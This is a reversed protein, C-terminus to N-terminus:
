GGCPLSSWWSPVEPPLPGPWAGTPSAAAHAAGVTHVFAFLAPAVYEGGAVTFHVGDTCRLTQGAVVQSYHGGPSVMASLNFVSVEPPRPAASTTTTPAPHPADDAVTRIIQNELVARGPADEPWPVGSPQEGSDYYPTTLFVVAAGRSGLVGVAERYRQALYADFQSQGISTWAGDVQQNFLDGRALYLVVDPNFADIWDRWQALLADPDGSRCPAGPALTYWLVQIQQDMALSCGPSGENVLEVGFRPAEAALGVGLSGAVSDGVLLVRLPRATSTQVAASAAAAAAPPPAVPVPATAAATPVLTGVLVACLAAAAAVPAAVLGRWRPFAGERIPREVLVYSVAAISVTVALRLAALSYGTLHTREGDVVLLVPWYWLYVGYSITGLWVLPRLSLLWPVVSGPAQVAGAIVAATALSVLLFGGSFALPSTEPIRWWMVATGLAGAVALGAALRRGRATRVPGWLAFATALAAGVLIAQARTDTGYYARNSPSGGHPSLVAMWVASALAGTASLAFLWGLRRRRDAERAAEDVVVTSAGSLLVVQQDRRGAVAVTRAGAPAPGAAVNGPVDATLSAVLDRGEPTGARRRVSRRHGAHLVALVVLPWVLYFQEEIALSWTHLLPSQGTATAFYNAHQAVFYWNASYFITALGNSFLHPYNFIGPRVAAVLGVAAVMVLLAPLLRRARRAWFSGLAITGTGRWETVLLSTILFGSLVFFTDVGYYGGPIWSIGNHVAIVALVALARIGDLATVHLFRAGRGSTAM